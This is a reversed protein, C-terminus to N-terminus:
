LSACEGLKLGGVVNPLGGSDGFQAPPSNGACLLNGGIVNTAVETSDLTGLDGITVGTNDAILASGYIHNRILGFWAGAWGLVVVDGGIVNDKIPFNIYPNFTPGPGGGFSSVNGHITDGDLYMTLAQSAFVSGGVTDSTTNVGDCPPAPSAPTCGLGFTAGKGVFVNGWINVTGMTVADFTAGPGVSLNGFVHLTKGDPVTCTGTILLNGYTGSLDGGSCTAIGGGSASAMSAGFAFVLVACFGVVIGKRGVM